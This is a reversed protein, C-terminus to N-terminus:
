CHQVRDDETISKFSFSFDRASLMLHSLTDNSESFCDARQIVKTHWALKEYIDIYCTQNNTKYFMFVM